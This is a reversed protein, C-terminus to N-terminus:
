GKMAPPQIGLYVSVLMLFDDFNYCLGYVWQHEKAKELFASQESTPKGGPAKLECAFGLGGGSCPFPGVIDVVGKRVGMAKLKGAEGKSRAGGNPVHMVYKLAPYRQENAFIWEFVSRHLDEEPSARKKRLVDGMRETCGKGSRRVPLTGAKTAALYDAATMRGFGSAVVSAVVSTSRLTSPVPTSSPTASQSTYRLSPMTMNLLLRQITSSIKNKKFL